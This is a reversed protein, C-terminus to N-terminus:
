GIYSKDGVSFAAQAPRKKAIEGYQKEYRKIDESLIRVMEKALFPNIGIPQHEIKVIAETKMESENVPVQTFRPAIAKFDIIFETDNHAITLENAGFKRGLDLNINLKNEKEM